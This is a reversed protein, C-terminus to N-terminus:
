DAFHDYGKRDLPIRKGHSDIRVVSGAPGEPTIRGIRSLRLDPFTKPWSSELRAANGDAVTFLLEFDEGDCLAHDLPPRGDSRSAERAERAIPIADDLIEASCGSAACLHGLDTALGDSVDIMATALGEEALFRGERVRPVFRLHRGSLSGGLFGTVYLREGARAGSRRVVRDPEVRGVLTITVAFADPASAVDGGVIRVDFSAATARMGEYLADVARPDIRPDLVLSAVCALPVGGMAAIDSLNRGLAKRGVDRPDDDRTFHVGRIVPDTTILLLDRCGPLRIAAADDGPGVVVDDSEGIPATLRRILETEGLDRIEM